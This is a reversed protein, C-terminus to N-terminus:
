PEDKPDPQASFQGLVHYANRTFLGLTSSSVKLSVSGTAIQAPREDTGLDPLYREFYDKRRILGDLEESEEIRKRFALADGLLPVDKLFGGEASDDKKQAAELKAEVRAKEDAFAILGAADDWVSTCFFLREGTPVSVDGRACGSDCDLWFRLEGEDDPKSGITRQVCQLPSRPRLLTLPLASARPSDNPGSDSATESVWGGSSFKVQEEGRATVISSAGRASLICTKDQPGVLEESESAAGSEFDVDVNVILRAGSAGWGDITKPMWSGPELGLNLKIRWSTGALTSLGSAAELLLAAALLRALM